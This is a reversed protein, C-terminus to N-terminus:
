LLRVRKGEAARLEKSAEVPYLSKPEWALEGLFQLADFHKVIWFPRSCQFRQVILHELAERSM